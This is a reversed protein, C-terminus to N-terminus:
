SDSIRMACWVGYSCRAATPPSKSLVRSLVTPSMLQRCALFLRFDSSCFRLRLVHFMDCARTASIVSSTSPRMSSNRWPWSSCMELTECRMCVNTLSSSSFSDDVCFKRSRLRAWKASDLVCSTSCCSCDFSSMSLTSSSILTTRSLTFCRTPSLRWAM